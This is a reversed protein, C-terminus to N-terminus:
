SNDSVPIEQLDYKDLAKNLKDNLSKLGHDSIGETTNALDVIHNKFALANVKNASRFKSSQIAKERALLVLAKLAGSSINDTQKSPKLKPKSRNDRDMEEKFNLLEDKDFYLCNQDLSIDVLKAGSDDPIFYDVDNQSFRFIAIHHSSADGDFYAHANVVCKPGDVIVMQDSAAVRIDILERNGFDDDGHFNEGIMISSDIGIVSDDFYINLGYDSSYMLLTKLARIVPMDDMGLESIALELDVNQPLIPLSM